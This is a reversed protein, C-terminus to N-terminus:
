RMDFIKLGLFGIARVMRLVTPQSVGCQDSLEKLSMDPIKEFHDLVYNAAKQESVRMDGYRTEISLRIESKM